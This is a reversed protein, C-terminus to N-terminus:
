PLEPHDLFSSRIRLAELRLYQTHGTQLYGAVVLLLPFTYMQKNNRSLCRPATSCSPCLLSWPIYWSYPFEQSLPASPKWPHAEAKIIASSFIVRLSQARSAHQAALTSCLACCKLTLKPAFTTARNIPSCSGGPYWGACRLASSGASM